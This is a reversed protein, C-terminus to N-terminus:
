AEGELYSEPGQFCVVPCKPSLGSFLTERPPKSMSPISRGWEGQSAIRAAVKFNHPMYGMLWWQCIHFWHCSLPFARRVIKRYIAM